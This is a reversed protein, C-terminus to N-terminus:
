PYMILVNTHFYCQYDINIMIMHASFVTILMIILYFPLFLYMSYVKTYIIILGCVMFHIDIVIILLVSNGGM